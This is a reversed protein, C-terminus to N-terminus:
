KMTISARRIPEGADLVSGFELLRGSRVALVAQARLKLTGVEEDLGANVVARKGSLLGVEVSISMSCAVIHSTSVYICIHM